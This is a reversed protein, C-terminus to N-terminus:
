GESFILMRARRYLQLQARLDAAEPHL